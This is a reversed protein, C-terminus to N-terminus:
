QEGDKFGDIFGDPEPTPEATPEEDEQPEKVEPQKFLGNGNLRESYMDLLLETGVQSFGDFDPFRIGKELEKATDEVIGRRVDISDRLDLVVDLSYEAEHKSFYERLARCFLPNDCNREHLTQLEDASLTLPLRLLDFDKTINEPNMAAAELATLHDLYIKTYAKIAAVAKEADPVRQKHEATRRELEAGLYNQRLEDYGKSHKEKATLYGNYVERCKEIYPFPQPKTNFGYEEAEQDYLEMLRAHRENSVRRKEDLEQKKQELFDKSLAM